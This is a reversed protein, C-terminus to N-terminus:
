APPGGGAIGPDWGGDPGDVVRPGGGWMWVTFGATTLLKALTHNMAGAVERRFEDVDLDFELDRLALHTRWWVSVTGDGVAELACGGGRGRGWEYRKTEECVPVGMAVLAMAVRALLGGDDGPPLPTAWVDERLLAFAAKSKAADPLGAYGDSDPTEALDAIWERWRDGGGALVAEAIPALEEPDPLPPWRKKRGLVM